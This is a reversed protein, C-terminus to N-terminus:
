SHEVFSWIGIAILSLLLLQYILTNFAHLAANGRLIFFFFSVSLIFTLSNNIRLCTRMKDEKQISVWHTFNKFDPPSLVHRYTLTDFTQNPYLELFGSDNSDLMKAAYLKDYILKLQPELTPNQKVYFNEVLCNTYNGKYRVIIVSGIFGLIPLVM